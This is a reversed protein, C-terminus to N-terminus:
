FFYGVNLSYIASFHKTTTKPFYYDAYFEPSIIFNGIEYDATFLFAISQLRLPQKSVGNGFENKFLNRLGPPQRDVNGTHKVNYVQSNFNLMISPKLEIEDKKKFLHYFNWQHSGSLTFSFNQFKTTSTDIVRTQAPPLPPMPPLSFVSDFYDVYRGNSFGMSLSPMLWFKKYIYFAYLDNQYPNAEFSTKMANVYRTYSIGASKKKDTYIYAPNIAYQFLKMQKNDNVFFGNMSVSFGNKNYYGVSSTYYLKNKQAQEANLSNNKLSFVGNSLGINFDFYSTKRKEFLNIFDDTKLMSDLLRKEEPTFYTTDQAKTFSFSLLMIAIFSMYKM